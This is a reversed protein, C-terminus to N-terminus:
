TGAQGADPRAPGTGRGRIDGYLLGPTRPIGRRDVATLSPVMGSVCVGAVRTPGSSGSEAVAQRVAALARRPGRRWAAAADHEMHDGSAHIIRHPVRAQAVVQGDEAVALAKVSTTGIDIGVTLPSRPGDTM